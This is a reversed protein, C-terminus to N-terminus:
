NATVKGSAPTTLNYGEKAKATWNLETGKKVSISGNETYEVGNVTVTANTLALTVKVMEVVPKHIIYVLDILELYEQGMFFLTLSNKDVEIEFEVSNDGQEVCIM